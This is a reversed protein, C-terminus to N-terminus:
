KRRGPAGVPLWPPSHRREAPVGAGCLYVPFERVGDLGLLREIRSEQMAATTYAGLGQATALLAFTQALHGAELWVTRYANEGGYKWLTREFAATMICLFASRAV